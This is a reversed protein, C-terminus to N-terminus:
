SERATGGEGDERMGKTENGHKRKKRKKHKKEIALVVINHMCCWVFKVLNCLLVNAVRVKERAKRCTARRMVAGARSYVHM